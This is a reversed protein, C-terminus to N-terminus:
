IFSALVAAVVGSVLWASGRLGAASGEDETKTVGETNGQSTGNKKAESERAKKVIWETANGNYLRFYNLHKDLDLGESAPACISDGINCWDHLVDTFNKLGAELSGTRTANGSYNEGGIPVTFPQHPARRVAGFM